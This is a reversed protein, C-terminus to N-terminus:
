HLYLHARIVSLIAAVIVAVAIAAKGRHICIFLLFNGALASLGSMLFPGRMLEIGLFSTFRAMFPTLVAIAASVLLVNFRTALAM